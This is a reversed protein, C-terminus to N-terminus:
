CIMIEIQKDEMPSFAIIKKGDQDIIRVLYDDDKLRPSTEKVNALPLDYRSMPTLELIRGVFESGAEKSSLELVVVEDIEFRDKAFSDKMLAGM